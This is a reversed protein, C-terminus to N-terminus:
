KNRIIYITGPTTEFRVTNDDVLTTSINGGGQRTINFNKIGEYKLKCEKGSNSTIELGIAKGNEWQVAIEFNGRAKIGKFSGSTWADPLAPLLEICEGQSQVLMETMGATAGFNGDIQFPPHTDFLNPLTSEKL